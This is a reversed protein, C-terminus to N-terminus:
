TQDPPDDNGDDDDAADRAKNMLAQGLGLRGRDPQPQDTGVRLRDPVVDLLAQGLLPDVDLVHGEIVVHLRVDGQLLALNVHVGAQGAVVEIRVILLLM